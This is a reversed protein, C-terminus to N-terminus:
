WIFFTQGRSVLAAYILFYFSPTHTNHYRSRLPRLSDSIPIPPPRHASIEHHKTGRHRLAQPSGDNDGVISIAVAKNTELDQEQDEDGEV